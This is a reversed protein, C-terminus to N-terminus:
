TKGNLWDWVGTIGQNLDIKPKWSIEKLLKSSNLYIKEVEGPRLSEYKVNLEKKTVTRIVKLLEDLSTQKGSGVNFVDNLPNDLIKLNLNAVDKVYIYDRTTKGDGFVTLPKGSKLNGLFISIVGAEGMVDQRPGYINAFRLISVPLGLRNYYGCYIEAAAKSAGYPALPAKESNEHPPINEPNGYIAGGTSAFIFHKIGKKFSQNLLNITGGINISSDLIPDRTSAIVSAQAAYHLVCDVDHLAENVVKVDRIDGNIFTTDSFLNEKKGSRLNDIIKVSHGMKLAEEAIHSGVFGAGGTILLNSM